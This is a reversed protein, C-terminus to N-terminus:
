VDCTNTSVSPVSDLTIISCFSFTEVKIVVQISQSMLPKLEEAELIAGSTEFSSAPVCSPLMMYVTLPIDESSDLMYKIGEVGYVNAIEHCDAIVTTTGHPLVARAFQYPTGFSSEIHVHSDILGPVIYKGDADIVYDAEYDGMGLFIGDSIALNGHMIEHSFVNVVNCNKIVLDAKILQNAAKIQKELKSFKM